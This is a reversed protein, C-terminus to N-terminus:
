WFEIDESESRDSNKKNDELIKINTKIEKPKEKYVPEGIEIDKSKVDSIHAKPLNVNPKSKGRFDQQDEYQELQDDPSKGTMMIM